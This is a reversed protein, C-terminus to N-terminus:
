CYDPASHTSQLLPMLLPLARLAVLASKLPLTQEVQGMHHQTHKSLLCRGLAVQIHATRNGAVKSPSPVIAFTAAHVSSNEQQLGPEVCAAESKDM